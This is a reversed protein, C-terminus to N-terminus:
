FTFFRKTKANTHTRQGRSPLQRHHRIGRYLSLRLFLRFIKSLKIKLSKGYFNTNFEKILNLFKKQKLFPKCNIPNIGNLVSINKVKINNIGFNKIFFFINYKFTHNTMKRLDLKM